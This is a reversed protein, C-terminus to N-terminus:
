CLARYGKSRSAYSLTMRQLSWIGVVIIRKDITKEEGLSNRVFTIAAAEVAANHVADPACSWPGSGGGANNITDENKPPYIHYLYSMYKPNSWKHTISNANKFYRLRNQIQSFYLGKQLGFVSAFFKLHQQSCVNIFKTPFYLSLIKAKFIPSLINNDIAEFNPKQKAGEEVLSVLTARVLSFVNTDSEGHTKFKNASRYKKTSDDWYIGFKLAPSPTTLAWPKTIVEVYNCFTPKGRGIAYKNLTIKALSDKPFNELFLKQARLAKRERDTKYTKGFEVLESKNFFSDTM